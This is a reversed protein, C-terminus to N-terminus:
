TSLIRLLIKKSDDFITLADDISIRYKFMTRLLDTVIPANEKSAKLGNFLTNYEEQVVEELTAKTKEEM